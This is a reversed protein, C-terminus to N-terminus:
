LPPPCVFCFNANSSLYPSKWISSNVPRTNLDLLQSGSDDYRQVGSAALISPSVYAQNSTSVPYSLTTNERPLNEISVCFIYHSIDLIILVTIFKVVETDGCKLLRVIHYM